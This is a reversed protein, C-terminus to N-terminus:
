VDAKPPIEIEAPPDGARRGGPIYPGAIIVIQKAVNLMSDPKLLFAGFVAVGAYIFVHTTHTPPTTQELYLFFGGGALLILGIAARTLVDTVSRVRIETSTRM